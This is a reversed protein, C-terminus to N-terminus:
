HRPLRPTEAGPARHPQIVGWFSVRALESLVTGPNVWMAPWLVVFILGAIALWLLFGKAERWLTPWDWGLRGLSLIYRGALALLTFPILYLAPLKTLWALGAMVASLVLYRRSPVQKEQAVYVLLSLASLYMFSALLADLHVRRSHALLNPDLAILLAALLALRKGALKRLLLYAVAVTLATILATFFAATPLLDPLDYYNDARMQWLSSLDGALAFRLVLALGFGWTATVGPHLSSISALDGRGLNYMFDVSREIWRQEDVTVYAGAAALRPALAIAFLLLSM